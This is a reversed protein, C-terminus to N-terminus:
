AEERHKKLRSAITWRDCKMIKAITRQSYGEKLYNLIDQTNIDHRYFSNKKGQKKGIKAESIKQKTEFSLKKGLRSERLKQKTETSFKKSLCAESIKKKAEESQKKGLNAKSIKQKTEESLKKGLNVEHLKRKAEKTQERGKMPSVRGKLTLSIKQKTKESHKGGDGGERLNYISGMKGYVTIYFKELMVMKSKTDCKTIVEWTFNDEGYKRIANYFYNDSSKNKRKADSYHQSRRRALTEITMGIYCHGNLINKARYIIMM